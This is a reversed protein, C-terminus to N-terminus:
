CGRSKTLTELPLVSNTPTFSIYLQSDGAYLHYKLYNKYIVSGLLTTHLSHFSTPFTRFEPTDGCSLTSFASIFDNISVAQFHSSLNSLFWDLFLYDLSFWNQLRTLLISHDVTDFAASLDLLILSTVEGRCMALILDNHIKLLSLTNETSHFIQHASQFSSFLSNSSLHSQIRSAVVRELIKSIFNFQFQVFTTSIMLPYSLTKSFLSSLLM